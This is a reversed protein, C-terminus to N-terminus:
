LGHPAGPRGAAFFARVFSLAKENRRLKDPNMVGGPLLLASYRDASAEDLPVDVSL